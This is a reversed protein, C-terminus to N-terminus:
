LHTEAFSILASEPYRLGTVDQSGIVVTSGLHPQARLYTAMVLGATPAMARMGFLGFGSHVQDDNYDGSLGLITALSQVEDLTFRNMLLPRRYAEVLKRALTSNRLGLYQDLKVILLDYQDVRLNALTSKLDSQQAQDSGTILYGAVEELKQFSKRLIDNLPFGGATDQLVVWKTQGLRDGNVHDAVSVQYVMPQNGEDGSRRGQALLGNKLSGYNVAIFLPGYTRVTVGPHVSVFVGERTGPIVNEGVEFVFKRTEVGDKPFLTKQFYSAFSRLSLLGAVVTTLRSVDVNEVPPPQNNALQFLSPIIGIPFSILQTWVEEFGPVLITHYIQSALRVLPLDVANKGQAYVECLTKIRTIVPLVHAIDHRMFMGILILNDRQERSLQANKEISGLVRDIQGSVDMLMVMVKRFEGEIHGIEEIELVVGRAQTYHILEALVKRIEPVVRSQYDVYIEQIGSFAEVFQPDRLLDEFSDGSPRTHNASIQRTWYRPDRMLPPVAVMQDPTMENALRELAARAESCATGSFAPVGQLARGIVQYASAALDSALQGSQGVEGLRALDSGPLGLPSHDAALACTLIGPDIAFTTGSM